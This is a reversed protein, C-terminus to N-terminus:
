QSGSRLRSGHAWVERADADAEAHTHAGKNGHGHARTRAVASQQSSAAPQQAAPETLAAACSYIHLNYILEALPASYM